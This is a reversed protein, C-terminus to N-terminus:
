RTEPQVVPFEKDLVGVKIGNCSADLHSQLVKRQSKSFNEYKKEDLFDVFLEVAVARLVGIVIDCYAVEVSAIVFNENLKM